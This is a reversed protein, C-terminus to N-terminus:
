QLSVKKSLIYTYITGMSIIVFTSILRDLTVAVLAVGLDFQLLSALGAVIGERIGLGGPTIAVLHTLITAASFLICEVLSADQSLMDFAVWFRGAGILIIFFQVAVLQWVTSREQRLIQWGELLQAIRQTWKASPLQISTPLWFFLISSAMLFFGFFLVIPISSFQLIALYALSIVGVVGNVGVFLISLAITASIYSAYPLRHRQKLYVGKTIAGGAFALQNTLTHISALGIGENITLTVKLMRFILFNIIGSGALSAIVLIALGVITIPSFNLLERYKDAHTYLHRGFLLLALGILAIPVMSKANLKPM